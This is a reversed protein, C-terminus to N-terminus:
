WWPTSWVKEWDIMTWEAPCNWDETPDCRTWEPTFFGEFKFCEEQEPCSIVSSCLSPCTICNVGESILVVAFLALYAFLIRVLIRKTWFLFKAFM